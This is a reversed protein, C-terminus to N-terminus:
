NDNVPEASYKKWIVNEKLEEADLPSYWANHKAIEKLYPLDYVIHCKSNKSVYRINIEKLTGIMGRKSKKKYGLRSCYLEYEEYLDKTTTKLERNSLVYNFKLFKYVNNLRDTIADAKNNTLKFHNSKFNSVDREMMFLYFAKGVDDNMCKNDIMNWYENDGRRKTNLDCIYYRRGHSNKICDDNSNIIYNNINNSKFSRMYKDEYICKKSTTMQKICKSINSWERMTTEELEEFVVLLKGHLTYNYKTKLPESNSEICIDNGLVYDMLFTTGTSKGIGETISKLLLVTENKNGQVVNSIWNLIYNYSEDDDDCWIEKFFNLVIKVGDKSEKSCENYKMDQNHKYPQFTNINSGLVFQQRPICVQNYLCYYQTKFWLLIDKPIRTFFTRNMVETNIITLSSEENLLYDGSKLPFIYGILYIKTNKFDSNPKDIKDTNYLNNLKQLDFCDTNIKFEKDNILGNMKYLM